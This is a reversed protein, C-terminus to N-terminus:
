SNSPTPALNRPLKAWNYYVLVKYLNGLAAAESDCGQAALDQIYNYIVEGCTDAMTFKVEPLKASTPVDVKANKGGLAFSHREMEQIFFETLDFLSDPEVANMKAVIGQFDKATVAGAALVKVAARQKDPDLVTMAEAHALPIQGSNVMPHIEEVLTTLRIRKKVRDVSVGAMNAIKDLPWNFETVRRQYAFAEEMPLLDARGTNEMLMAASAQEDTMEVVNANITIWGLLSVARYRREGAILEYWPNGELDKIPRVTIAQLLGETAISSALEQLQDPDFWKRDNGGTVIKEMPVAKLEGVVELKTKKRPM